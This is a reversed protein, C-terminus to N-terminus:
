YFGTMAAPPPFSSGPALPTMHARMAAAISPDVRKLRVTPDKHKMRVGISHAKRNWIALAVAGVGMAVGLWAIPGSSRDAGKLFIVMGVMALAIVGAGILRRQKRNETSEPVLLTVNDGIAMRILLYPLAGFVVFIATWGPATTLKRKLVLGGTPQGTRLCIQPLAEARELWGRHILIDEM